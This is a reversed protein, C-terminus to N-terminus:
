PFVKDLVKKITAALLGAVGTMVVWRLVNWGFQPGRYERNQIEQQKRIKLQKIELLRHSKNNFEFCRLAFDVKQELVSIALLVRIDSKSLEKINELEEPKLGGEWKKPVELLPIVLEHEDIENDDM